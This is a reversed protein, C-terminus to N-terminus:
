WVEEIKDIICGQFSNLLLGYMQNFADLITIPYSDSSQISHIELITNKKYGAIDKLLVIHTYKKQYKVM